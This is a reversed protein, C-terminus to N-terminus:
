EPQQNLAAVAVEISRCVYEHLESLVILSFDDDSARQADWVNVFIRVHESQESLFQLYRAVAQSQTEDNAPKITNLPM